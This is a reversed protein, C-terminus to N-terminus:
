VIVAEVFIPMEDVDFTLDTSPSTLTYDTEGAAGSIAERIQSLPLTSSPQAEREFLDALSENVAALVEPTNPTLSSFTVTVLSATLEIVLPTVTVPVVTELYALTAAREGADPLIASGSGDNDRVYAVSVTNPGAIGPFEWARTNGAVELAWRVYDGPGGGRPPTRLHALLRLLAEAVQEDDTGTQTVTAVVGEPTVGPIPSSLSVPEAVEVNAGAGTELAHAVVTASGGSVVVAGDSEYLSGDARQFQTGDPITVGNSGTLALTGEWRIAQKQELGFITFWRWFYTDEASDPFAQRLIYGLFGYLGRTLRAQINALVYEVSEPPTTGDTFGGFDARVRSLLQQFTPISFAM